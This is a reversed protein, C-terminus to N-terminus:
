NNSSLRWRRDGLTSLILTPVGARLDAAATSVRGHRVVARCAPFAGAYNTPGVVKVNDFHPRPRTLGALAFRVGARWSRLLGRQDHRDIAAVTRWAICLLVTLVSFATHAAIVHLYRRVRWLCPREVHYHEAAHPESSPRPTGGASLGRKRGWGGRWRGAM